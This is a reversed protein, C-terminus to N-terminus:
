EPFLTCATSIGTGNCAIIGAKVDATVLVAVTNGIGIFFTDCFTVEAQGVTGINAAFIPSSICLIVIRITVIGDDKAIHAIFVGVDCYIM